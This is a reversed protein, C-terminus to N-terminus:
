PLGEITWRGAKWMFFFLDGFHEITVPRSVLGSRGAQVELCKVEGGDYELCITDIVVDTRSRLTLHGYVCRDGSWSELTMGIICKPPSGLVTKLAGGNDYDPSLAGIAYLHGDSSGFYVVGDMVAPFSSIGGGVEFQQLTEGTQANLAYLYGNSTGVYVVGNSVALRAWSDSVAFSWLLEGTTSELAHISGEARSWGHTYVIGSSLSQSLTLDVVPEYKWIVQGSRADLAHLNRSGEIGASVYLIGNSVVPWASDHQVVYEYLVKGTTSDLAHLKRFGDPGVTIYVVENAVVTPLQSGVQGDPDFKWLVKGTAADLKRLDKYVHTGVVVYVAGDSEEIRHVIEDPEYKWLLDGTLADLAHLKRESWHGVGTLVTGDSVAWSFGSYHWHPEGSMARVAHLGQTWSGLQGINAYAIGDFVTSVSTDRHRWLLRGSSADIVLLEENDWPGVIAYVIGGVVKQRIVDERTRYEWLLRGEPSKDECPDYVVALEPAPKITPTSIPAPTRSIAGIVAQTAQESQSMPTSAVSERLPTASTGTSTAGLTVVTPNVSSEREPRPSPCPTPVPKPAQGPEPKLTPAPGITPSSSRIQGQIDIAKSPSATVSSPETEGCAFAVFLLQASLGVLSLQLTKVLLM